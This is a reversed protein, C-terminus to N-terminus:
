PHATPDAPPEDPARRRFIQFSADALFEHRTILQYGAASLESVIRDPDTAHGLFRAIGVRRGEVIAIRGGPQLDREARRFYGVRDPIHHYSNSAFMLEVPEPLGPEDPASSVTRVNALGEREAHRAIRRLLGDDVDVAYVVGTPGVARALRFTYYGGGSGLDAVREGGLLALASVVEDPKAHEDRDPDHPGGYARAKIGAWMDRLREGLSV